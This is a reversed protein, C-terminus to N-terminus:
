VLDQNFWGWHGLSQGAWLGFLAALKGNDTESEEEKESERSQSIPEDGKGMGLDAFGWWFGVMQRGGHRWWRRVQDGVGDGLDEEAERRGVGRGEDAGGGDALGLEAGKGVQGEKAAVAGEVPHGEDEAEEAVRVVAVEGAEDGVGREALGGGGGSAVAGAVHEVEAV